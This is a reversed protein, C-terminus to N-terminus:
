TYLWAIQRLYVNFGRKVRLTHTNKKEGSFGSTKGGSTKEDVLPNECGASKQLRQRFFWRIWMSWARCFNRQNTEALPNECEKQKTERKRFYRPLQRKLSQLRRRHKRTLGLGDWSEPGRKKPGMGAGTEPWMGAGM